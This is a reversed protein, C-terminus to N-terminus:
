CESERVPCTGPHQNHYPISVGGRRVVVVLTKTTTPFQSTLPVTDNETFVSDANGLAVIRDGGATHPALYAPGEDRGVGRCEWLDLTALITHIKYSPHHPDQSTALLISHLYLVMDEQTIRPLLCPM